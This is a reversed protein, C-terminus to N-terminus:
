AALEAVLLILTVAQTAAIDINSVYYNNVNASNFIPIRPAGSENSWDVFYSRTFGTDTVAPFGIRLNGTEQGKVALCATEASALYGLIAHDTNARLLNETVTILTDEWVSAVDAAPVDVEIGKIHRIRSSIDGWMALRAAIGPLDSYCLRLTAQAVDTATGNVQVALTDQPHLQEQGMRPLLFVSPLDTSALEIGEVNDYLMPSKIQTLVPTGTGHLIVEDLACSAPPTFNRVTLSDGPSMVITTYVPGAGIAVGGSITDIALGM